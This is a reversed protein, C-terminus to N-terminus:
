GRHGTVAIHTPERDRILAWAPLERARGTGCAAALWRTMLRDRAGLRNLLHRASLSAAIVAPLDARGYVTRLVSVAVSDPDLADLLYPRDALESWLGAAGVHEALRAAVYSSPSEDSRAVVVLGLPADGPRLDNTDSTRSRLHAKAVANQARMGARPGNGSAGFGIGIWM